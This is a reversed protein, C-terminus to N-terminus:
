QMHFRRAPRGVASGRNTCAWTWGGARATLDRGKTDAPGKQGDITRVLYPGCGSSFAAHENCTSAGPPGVWPHGVTQAPWLGGVLLGTLDRGKTDAPGKPGDIMRVLYPGCSSPLPLSAAQHHCHYHHQGARTTRSTGTIIAVQITSTM